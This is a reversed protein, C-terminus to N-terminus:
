RPACRRSCPPTASGTTRPRSRRWRTTPSRATRARPFTPTTRSGTPRQVRRAASGEDVVGVRAAHTADRHAHQDVPARPTEAPPVTTPAGAGSSAAVGPHGLGLLVLRARRDPARRGAGRQVARSARRRGAPEGECGVPLAGRRVVARRQNDDALYTGHSSNTFVLVDGAKAGKLMRKLGNVVATHTAKKDLLLAVDSKTFDYHDVLLSAWAKADNVCGTLDDGTGPYNNIGVCLARKTMDYYQRARAAARRPGVINLQHTADDLEPRRGVVEARSLEATGRRGTPTPRESQVPRGPPHRLRRRERVLRVRRVRQRAGVHEDHGPRAVLHLGEGVHERGADVRAPPPIAVVAGELLVQRADAVARRGSEGAPEATVVGREDARALNQAELALQVHVLVAHLVLVPLGGERDGVEKVLDDVFDIRREHDRDAGRAAREGIVLEAVHDHGARRRNSSM